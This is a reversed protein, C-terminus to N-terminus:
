KLRLRWPSWVPRPVRVGTSHAVGTARAPAGGSEGAGRPGSEGRRGRGVGGPTAAVVLRKRKEGLILPSLSRGAPKPSRNGRLQRGPRDAGFGRLAGREQRSRGPLRVGPLYSSGFGGCTLADRQGAKLRGASPGQCLPTGGSRWSWTRPARPQSVPRPDELTYIRLRFSRSRPSPPSSPTIAPKAPLPLRPMARPLAPIGRTGSDRPLYLAAQSGRRGPCRERKWGSVGGSDGVGEREGLHRCQFSLSMKAKEQGERNKRGPNGCRGPTQPPPGARRPQAGYGPEARPHRPGHVMALPALPYDHAFPGPVSSPSAKHM